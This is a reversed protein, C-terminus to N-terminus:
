FECFLLQPRAVKSLLVSRCLHKGTIKTLSKKHAKKCLLKLNVEDSISLLFGVRVSFYAYSFFLM